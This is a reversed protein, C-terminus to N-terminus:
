QTARASDDYLRRYDETMSLVKKVYNRTELFPIDDIFEEQDLDEGRREAMWRAVRSDGANYAALALYPEGFKRMLDALLATGMALNTRATTLMSMRFRGLKLRGAYLRATSPLLQMLGVANASSKITADFGSEQAILAAVLYPSLDHQAALMRIDDWYEVPFIVKLVAEPMLDGGSAMYQPYARKMAVIANLLDGQEKYIWGLTAQVMPSDGWTRQAYRLENAAEDYLGVALLSRIVQATPPPTSADTDVAPKEASAFELGTLAIAAGRRTLQKSASRGYYTNLYDATALTYRTNATARDGMTDYARGSWYLFAPRYDSRPFQRATRDFYAATDAYRGVRYARWGIRWAAQAAYRGGPFRAYLERLAGDAAAADGTKIYNEALDELADETWSSDPFWDILESTIRMYDSTLTLHKLTSAYFYLAEARRPGWRLVQAAPDQRLGDDVAERLRLRAQRYRGRFFDCEALRLTVLDRDGDVAYRRLGEFASQADAYRKAAFLREARGLDLRSRANGPALPELADLYDLQTRADAALDSFPFEYYVRAYAQVARSRDGAASAARALQMWIEEPSSTKERSLKEFIKAAADYEAQAEAAEAEALAAAEALYGHLFEDRLDKLRHEARDFDKLGIDALAAYYTVYADLPSVAQRSRDLLPTLLKLSEAARGDKLAEVAAKLTSFPKTTALQLDAATPALWLASADRSIPPHLTATLVPPDLPNVNSAAAKASRVESTSLACLSACLAIGLCRKM